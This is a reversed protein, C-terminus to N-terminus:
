KRLKWAVLAIVIVVAVMGTTVTMGNVVFLPRALMDLIPNPAPATEM